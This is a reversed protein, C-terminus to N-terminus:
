RPELSSHWCVLLVTRLNEESGSKARSQNKFLGFFSPPLGLAGSRAPASTVMDEIDVYAPELKSHWYFFLVTRVTKASYSHVRTTDISLLCPLSSSGTKTIKSYVISGQALPGQLLDSSASPKWGREKWAKRGNLVSNIYIYIYRCPLYVRPRQSEFM